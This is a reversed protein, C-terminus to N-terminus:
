KAPWIIPTMGKWDTVNKVIDPFMEYFRLAVSALDPALIRKAPLAGALTDSQKEARKRLFDAQGPDLTITMNTAKQNARRSVTVQEKGGNM